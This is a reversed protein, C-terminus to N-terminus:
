LFGLCRTRISLCALLRYIHMRECLGDVRLIVDDLGHCIGHQVLNIAVTDDTVIVLRPHVALGLVLLRLLLLSLFLVRLDLHAM